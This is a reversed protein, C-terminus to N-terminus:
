DNREIVGYAPSHLVNEGYGLKFEESGYDKIMICGDMIHIERIHQYYANKYFLALCRDTCEVIERYDSNSFAFFGKMGKQEEAYQPVNHSVAGRYAARMDEFGTYTFTGHDGGYTTGDVTYEINMTDNHGHGIAENKGIQFFLVFAEARIIFLGTCQYYRNFFSAARLRPM